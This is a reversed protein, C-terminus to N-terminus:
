GQRLVAAVASERVARRAPIWAAGAVVAMLGSAVAALLGISAGAVGFLLAEFTGSVVLALVVGGALGIASYAATPRLVTAVVEWRRAGLVSRIALEAKLADVVHSTVSTVGTVGLIIALVTAGSLLVTLFRERATARGVPLSLAEVAGISLGQGFDQVAKRLAPAVSAASRETRVVVSLNTPIILPEVAPEVLPLYVILAPPERLSLDRVDNVTGVIQYPEIPVASRTARDFRAAPTGDLELRSLKGTDPGVTTAALANSLVVGRRQRIRESGIPQKDSDRVPIRLVEFFDGAFFQVATRAVVGSGDTSGAVPYVFAPPYEDLPLDSSAGVADVGPLSRLHDLLDSFVVPAMAARRTSLSVQATVVGDASFGPEISTLRFLSEASLVSSSLLAVALGLQVAVFSYRLRMNAATVGRHRGTDRFRSSDSRLARALGPLMTVAFTVVVGISTLIAATGLFHDPELRPLVRAMSYSAWALGSAALFLGLCGAIISLLAAEKAFLSILQRRTAGFATRVSVERSRGTARALSLGLGNAGVAMLLIVTSWAVPWLLTGADEVVEDKLPRVVLDPRQTNLAEETADPFVGVVSPLLSELEREASVPEWGSRLRAVAKFSQGAADRLRATREPPVFLMWVETSADPFAFDAPLVGIIQRDLENLKVVQGIVGPAGGFASQWLEHSILVPISWRLNLFGKEGDGPVFLRGIHPTVGLANLVEPTVHAVVSRRHGSGDASLNMVRQDYVGL